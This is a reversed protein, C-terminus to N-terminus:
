KVAQRAMRRRTTAPTMGKLRLYMFLQQRHTLEHEKIFQLFELRTVRLGDVRTVLHEFFEGPKTAFQEVRQDVSERLAAAMEAPTCEKELPRYHEKFKARVEPLHFDEEGALLAGALADGADLTHRAIQRFTAVDPTPRFDFEAVPFEEVAAATDERVTRWTDLVHEVRVMGVNYGLMTIVGRSNRSKAAGRAPIM